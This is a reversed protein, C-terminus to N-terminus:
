SAASPGAHEAAASATPTYRPRVPGPHNRRWMIVSAVAVGAGALMALVLSVLVGPSLPGKKGPVWILTPEPLSTHEVQCAYRHRDQQVSIELSSQTYYTSDANPLIGSSETEALIDEEDRVWSIHIPRPYFGRAHCSLTVSGDPADRCSVSVEPPLQRGLTERGHQVLSRLTEVCEQQLYHQLFQCWPRDAEWRQKSLVAPQVAAVWLGRQGDFGIFDQSDYAYQLVGAQPSDDWLSCGVRLQLTHVGGTQNYRELLRGMIRQFGEKYGLLEQTKSRFYGPEVARRMWDRTPSLELTTSDYYAVGLGDVQGLVFFNPIGKSGQVGTFLIDWSHQVVPGAAGAAGLLCFWLGLTLPPMRRPFPSRGSEGLGCGRLLLNLAPKMYLCTSLFSLRLWAVAPFTEMTNM